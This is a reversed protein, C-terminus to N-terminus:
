LQNKKETQYLSEIILDIIYVLSCFIIQSLCATENKYLRM